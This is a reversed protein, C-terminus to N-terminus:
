ARPRLAVRAPAGDLVDLRLPLCMMDHPGPGVGRLDLGEVILVDAGLLTHHVPFTNSEDKEISLADIGVLRVGRAVLWEAAEPSLAQWEKGAKPTDWLDSNPTKFLVREVPGEPWGAECHAPTVADAAPVELVWAPGSWRALPVAPLPTGGQLFHAPADVHTGTHSGFDVRSVHYPTEPQTTVTEVVVDPDGPFIPMGPRIPLSVDLWGADETV